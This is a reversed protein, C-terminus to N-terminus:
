AAISPFNLRLGFPVIFPHPILTKGYFHSPGGLIGSAWRRGSTELGVEISFYLVKTTFNDLFFDYSGVQMYKRYIPRVAIPPFRLVAM